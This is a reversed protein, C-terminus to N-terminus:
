RLSCRAAVNAIVASSAGNNRGVSAEDTARISCPIGAASLGRYRSRTTRGIHGCTDRSVRSWHITLHRSRLEPMDSWTHRTWGLRPRLSSRCDLLHDTSETDAQWEARIVEAKRSTSVHDEPSMRFATPGRSQSPARGLEHQRDSRPERLRPRQARQDHPGTILRRTGSLAPQGHWRLATSASVPM